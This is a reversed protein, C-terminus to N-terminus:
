LVAWLILVAAALAMVLALVSVWVPVPGTVRGCRSCKFQGSQPSYTHETFRGCSQCELLPKM